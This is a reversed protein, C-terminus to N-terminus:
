AIGLFAVLRELDSIITHLQQERSCTALPLLLLLDFRLIKKNKVVPPMSKKQELTAGIVNLPVM